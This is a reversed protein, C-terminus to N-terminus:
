FSRKGAPIPDGSQTTPAPSATVTVKAPAAVTAVPAALSDDRDINVSGSITEFKLSSEGNGYVATKRDYKDGFNTSLSGSVTDLKATFGKGEPMSVSISGSVSDVDMKRPVSGLKYTQSGSVSECDISDFTGGVNISGSVNELKLESGSIGSVDISGSVNELEVKKIYLGGGAFKISSSVNEIDVKDLAISAPIQLTLSKSLSNLLSLGRTSKCFQIVLKNGKVRYQLETDANLERNATESFRIESGNYVEINVSGSLWNLEIEKIGSTSIATGGPTYADSDDYAFSTAGFSFDAFSSGRLGTALLGVLLVTVVSWICVRALASHKM